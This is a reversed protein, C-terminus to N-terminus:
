SVIKFLSIRIVGSSKRVTSPIFLLVVVVTAVALLFVGFITILAIGIFFFFFIDFSELVRSLFLKTYLAYALSFLLIRFSFSL